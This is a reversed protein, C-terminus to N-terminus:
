WTIPNPRLGNGVRLLAPGQHGTAAKLTPPQASSRLRLYQRRPVGARPVCPPRPFASRVVSCWRLQGWGHEGQESVQRSQRPVARELGKVFGKWFKGPLGRGREWGPENAQRSEGASSAWWLCPCAEPLGRTRPFLLRGGLLGSPGRNWELRPPCDSGSPVAERVGSPELWAM